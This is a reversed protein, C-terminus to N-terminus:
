RKSKKARKLDDEKWDKNIELQESELLVGKYHMVLFYALLVIGGATVYCIILKIPDEEADKTCEIKEEACKGQSLLCCTDCKFTANCDKSIDESLIRRDHSLNDDSQAYQVLLLFSLLKFGMMMKNCLVMLLGKM